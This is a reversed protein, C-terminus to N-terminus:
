RYNRSSFEDMEKQHAVNDIALQALEERAILDDLVNIKQQQQCLESRMKELQEEALLLKKEQEGIAGALQHCFQRYRATNSASWTSQENKIKSLYDNQYDQLQLFQKRENLVFDAAKSFKSVLDKQRKEEQDKVLNIQQSLM